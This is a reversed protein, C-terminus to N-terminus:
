LHIVFYENIDNCLSCHDYNLRVEVTALSLLVDHWIIYCQRTHAHMQTYM